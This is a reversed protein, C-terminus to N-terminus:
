CINICLFAYKIGVYFSLFKFRLVSTAIHKPTLIFVYKRSLQKDSWWGGWGVNNMYLSCTDYMYLVVWQSDVSEASDFSLFRTLGDSHM